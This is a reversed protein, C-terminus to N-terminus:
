FISGLAYEAFEYITEAQAGFGKKVDHFYGTIKRELMKETCEDDFNKIPQLIKFLACIERDLIIIMVQRPHSCTLFLDANCGSDYFHM